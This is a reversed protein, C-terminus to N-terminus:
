RQRNFSVEIWEFAQRETVDRSKAPADFGLELKLMPKPQKQSRSQAAEAGPFPKGTPTRSQTAGAGTKRHATVGNKLHATV